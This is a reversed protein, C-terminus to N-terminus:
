MLEKAEKIKELVSYPIKMNGTGTGISIHPKMAAHYDTGGSLMLGNRMAMQQYKEQMEPTYESHYGEVGDLGYEKLHILFKETEDDPLNMQHLHAEFSLGGCKHILEVAQEATMHQDGCFCPKGSGLYLDFAEKVSGILGKNVLLKAYHARGVIGGPALERVEDVTVDFGHENLLSCTKHVRYERMEFLKEMANKLEPNNIDIYYGLIHNQTACSVSFEIAPVVEIGLKKGEEMAEEVGAVTDHDTLAIAALGAKKAERVVGAPPLSGDSCISHTHLDIYKEMMEGDM